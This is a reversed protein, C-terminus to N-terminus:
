AQRETHPDPVHYGSGSQRQAFGLALEAVQVGQQKPCESCSAIGQDGWRCFPFFYITFLHSLAYSSQLTQDLRFDRSNGAHVQARAQSSWECLRSSRGPTRNQKNVCEERSPNGEADRRGTQRWPPDM